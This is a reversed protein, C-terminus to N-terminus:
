ECHARVIPLPAFEHITQQLKRFLSAHDHRHTGVEPAFASTALREAVPQLLQHLGALFQDGRHVAGFQPPRHFLLRRLRAQSELRIQAIGHQVFDAALGTGHRQQLM